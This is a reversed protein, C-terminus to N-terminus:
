QPDQADQSMLWAHDRKNGDKFKAMKHNTFKESHLFTLLFFSTTIESLKQFLTKGVQPPSSPTQAIAPASPGHIWQQYASGGPDPQIVIPFGQIGIAKTCDGVLSSELSRMLRREKLFNDIQDKETWASKLIAEVKKWCVLTKLKLSQTHFLNLHNLYM